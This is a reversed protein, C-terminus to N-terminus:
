FRLLNFELRGEVVICNCSLNDCEKIGMTSSDEDTHVVVLCYATDTGDILGLSLYAVDDGILNLRERRIQDLRCDQGPFLLFDNLYSDHPAKMGKVADLFIAERM